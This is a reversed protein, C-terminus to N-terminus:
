KWKFDEDNPSGFARLVETLSKGSWYQYLEYELTGPTQAKEMHEKFAVDFRKTYSGDSGWMYDGIFLYNVGPEM